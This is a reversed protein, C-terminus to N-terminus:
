KFLNFSILEPEDYKHRTFRAWRIESLSLGIVIVVLSPGILKMKFCAM